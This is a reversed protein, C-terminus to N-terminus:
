DQIEFFKHRGVVVVPTKGRSWRPSVAATHYHTAGKVGSADLREINRALFLAYRSEPSDNLLNQVGLNNCSFQKPLLCEEAPTCGSLDARNKIVAAVAYMGRFGEGRAEGLITNAIVTESPRSLLFILLIRM